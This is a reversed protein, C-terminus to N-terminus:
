PITIRELIEAALLVCGHRGPFPQVVTLVALDGMLPGTPAAADLVATRLAAVTARVTALDQGEVADCLISAAALCLACGDGDFRVASVAGAVVELELELADGCPRNRGDGKHTPAALRGRRTPARAHRM